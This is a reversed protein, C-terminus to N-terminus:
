DVVSFLDEPQAQLLGDAALRDYQALLGAFFDRGVLRIDMKPAKGRYKNLAILRTAEKLADPGPTVVYADGERRVSSGGAAKRKAPAIKLPTGVLALIEDASDVVSFLEEPRHALLGQAHARAYQESLGRYYEKGVLIIRKPAAGLDNGDILASVEELSSAGGPFLLFHDSAKAFQGVRASESEATGIARSRVIDEDGWTPIRVIALNEGPVVGERPKEQSGVAAAEFAAGMVGANGCGSLINYGRAILEAAVKAAVAMAALIKEDTRSSGLVTVTMARSAHAAYREDFAPIDAFTKPRPADVSPRWAGTKWAAKVRDAAAWWADLSEWRGTKADKEVPVSLTEVAFRPDALSGGLEALDWVLEKERIRDWARWGTWIYARNEMVRLYEDTDAPRGLIDKPRKAILAKNLPLRMKVLTLTRPTAWSIQRTLYSLATKPDLTTFIHSGFRGAEDPEAYDDYHMDGMTGSAKASNLGGRLGRYVTVYPEGDVYEIRTPSFPLLFRLSPGAPTKLAAQEPPAPGSRSAGKRMLLGITLAALASVAVNVGFLIAPMTLVAGVAPFLRSASVAMFIPLMAAISATMMWKSLNRYKDQPLKESYYTMWKNSNITILGGLLGALAFTLMPLQLFTSWVFATAALAGLVTWGKRGLAKEPLFALTALLGALWSGGDYLGIMTGAASPASFVSLALVTALVGYVMFHMFRFFAYPLYEGWSLRSGEQASPKSEAGEKPAPAPKTWPEKFKLSAYLATSLGIGISSVVMMAPGGLLNLLPVAAFLAMVICAVEVWQYAYNLGLELKAPNQNGIIMRPLLNEAVGRNVGYVLGGVISNALFLGFMVANTAGLAAAIPIPLGSVALALIAAVNVWKPNFRAMFASGMWAGAVRMVYGIGAIMLAAPLGFLSATFLPLAVAQVEQAMANVTWAPVFGLHFSRPLMRLRGLAGARQFDIRDVWDEALTRGESSDHGYLGDQVVIRGNETDIEFRVGKLLEYLRDRASAEDKGRVTINGLLDGEGVKAGPQLFLESLFVAGGEKPLGQVSKLTGAAKAIFFRHQLLVPEGRPEPRSELSFAALLGERMVDVGYSEKLSAWIDAGGMRANIEVIPAALKGGVLTLIAEVHANGTKLGVADLSKLAQARALEEMEKPLRLGYTTGREQNGLAPPNYSVSTFVAKGERVVVEVDTMLGDPIQAEFLVPPKEDVQKSRAKRPDTRALEDIKGEIDRFAAEAAEPSDIDLTVGWGGGGSDPKAVAKEFGAAKIKKFAERAEAASHAQFAPLHLSPDGYANMLERARIKSHAASVAEPSFGPVGLGEALEAELQAYANLYTKVADIRRTKAIGKAQEVIARLNDASHGGVDASYYNGPLIGKSVAFDKQDPYGLVLLEFGLEKSLAAMHEYLYDRGGVKSVVYLLSKGALPKDAPLAPSLSSRKRGNTGSVDLVPEETSGTRGRGEFLLGTAARTKETGAGPEALTESVETQGTKTTELVSVPAKKDSSAKAPLIADKAPLPLSKSAEAAPIIAANAAPTKLTAAAAASQVTPQVSPPTPLALGNTLPAINPAALPALQVSPAVATPVVPTGATTASQASSAAAQCFAEGSLSLVLCASLLAAFGKKLERM